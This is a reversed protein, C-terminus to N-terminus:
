AVHATRISPAFERETTPAIKFWIAYLAPEFRSTRLGSLARMQRSFSGRVSGSPHSSQM